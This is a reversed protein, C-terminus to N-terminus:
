YNDRNKPVMQRYSPSTSDEDIGWILYEHPKGEAFLRGDVLTPKPLDNAAGHARFIINGM